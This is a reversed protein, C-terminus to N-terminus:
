DIDRFARGRVSRVQMPSARQGTWPSLTYRQWNRRGQSVVVKAANVLCQPDSRCHFRSNCLMNPLELVAQILMFRKVVFIIETPIAQLLSM